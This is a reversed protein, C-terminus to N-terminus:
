TVYSSISVYKKRTCDLLSESTKWGIIVASQGLPLVQDQIQTVSLPDSTLVKQGKNIVKNLNTGKVRLCNAKDVNNGDRM